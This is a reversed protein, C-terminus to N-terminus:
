LKKETSLNYIIDDFAKRDVANIKKKIVAITNITLGVIMELWLSFFVGSIKAIKKYPVIVIM